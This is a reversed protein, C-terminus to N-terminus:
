LVDRESVLPTSIKIEMTQIEHVSELVLFVGTTCSFMGELVPSGLILFIVSKPLLSMRM